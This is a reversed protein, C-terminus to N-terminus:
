PCERQVFRAFEGLYAPDNPALQRGAAGLRRNFEAAKAADSQCYLPVPRAPACAILTPRPTAATANGVLWREAAEHRQWVRVPAALDVGCWNRDFGRGAAGLGMAPDAARSLLRDIFASTAKARLSGASDFRYAALVAPVGITPVGQGAAILQPYDADTLTVDEYVTADRSVRPPRGGCGQELVSRPLSMWDLGDNAFREPVRDRSFFPASRGVVYAMADISRGALQDFAESSAATDLTVGLGLMDNLVKRVTIATGSGLGGVNIRRGALACVTGGGGAMVDRRSVLHLVETHLRGVYRINGQLWRFQPEAAYAEMVDGQLIALSVGPLNNLDDLNNVSGAGILASLRLTQGKRDDLLRLMDAGLQAYIGGPLGTVIGVHNDRISKREAPARELTPMASQARAAGGAPLLLALLVFLWGAAQRMASFGPAAAPVPSATM